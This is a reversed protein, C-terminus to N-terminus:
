SREFPLQASPRGANAAELYARHLDPNEKVVAAVARMRPLGSALKDALRSNWERIAASGSPTGAAITDRPNAEGLLGEHLGPNKRVVARVAERPDVGAATLTAVAQHFQATANM